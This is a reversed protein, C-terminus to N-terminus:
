KAFMTFYNQAEDLSINMKEQLRKLIDDKAIGFALGTEIIGKAEGEIKGEIKGEVLAEKRTEEFVTCMNVDGKANIANYDLKCNAAGAVTMIVSKDVNHERAYNIAKEKTENLKDSKNLLIELLSFLDKNNINHLLLNNKRAEVLNIKYNNVFPLIEKPISLMDHLSTAGDWEKEGYYIVITIVPTFRDSKKMRSMYEDESMGKANKYKRSNDDYQKKYTGYDYGMIRMPMAYHIREQGEIGLIVFETNYNTSKKRIKVNDRAAGISEAYDKHELISSEETDIDQLENPRIIEQGNFLVANFFDAFHDNNRWYNKVVIDPKLNQTQNKM